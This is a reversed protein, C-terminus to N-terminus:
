VMDHHGFASVGPLLYSSRSPLSYAHSSTSTGIRSSQEVVKGAENLFQVNPTGSGDVKLLLLHRHAQASM